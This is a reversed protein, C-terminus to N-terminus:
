CAPPAPFSSSRVNAPTPPPPQHTGGVRRARRVRAWVPGGRVGRGHRRGGGVEVWCRVRNNAGTEINDYHWDNLLRMLALLKSSNAPDTARESTPRADPSADGFAMAHAAEAARAAHFRAMENAATAALPAAPALLELHNCVKRLVWMLPFLTCPMCGPIGTLRQLRPEQKGGFTHSRCM